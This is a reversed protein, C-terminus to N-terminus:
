HFMWGGDPLVTFEEFDDDLDLALKYWKQAEQNVQTVGEARAYHYGLERQAETNGQEAVRRWWKIVTELDRGIVDGAAFLRRSHM